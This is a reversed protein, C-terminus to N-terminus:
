LIQAGRFNLISSFICNKTWGFNRTFDWMYFKTWTSKNNEHNLIEINYHKDPSTGTHTTKPVKPVIINLGM